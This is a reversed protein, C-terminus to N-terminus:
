SQVTRSIFDLSADALNMDPFSELYAITFLIVITINHYEQSYLLNVIRTVGTRHWVSEDPHFKYSALDDRCFYGDM